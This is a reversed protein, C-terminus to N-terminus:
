LVSTFHKSIPKQIASYLFYNNKNTTTTNDIFNQMLCCMNHQEINSDCISLMDINVVNNPSMSDM